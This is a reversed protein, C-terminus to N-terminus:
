NPESDAFHLERLEPVVHDLVPHGVGLVRRLRVVVDDQLTRNDLINQLKVPFRPCRWLDPEENPECALCRKSLSENPTPYLM